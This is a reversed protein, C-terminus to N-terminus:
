KKQTSSLLAHASLEFSTDCKLILWKLYKNVRIRVHPWLHGLNVRNKRLPFSYPKLQSELSTDVKLILWRYPSTPPPTTHHYLTIKTDAKERELLYLYFSLYLSLLAQCYCLWLNEEKKFGNNSRLNLKPDESTLNQVKQHCIQSRRLPGQVGKTGKKTTSIFLVLTFNVGFFTQQHIPSFHSKHWDTEVKLCVCLSVFHVCLKVILLYIILLTKITIFLSACIRGQSRDRQWVNCGFVEVTTKSKQISGSRSSHGVKKHVM